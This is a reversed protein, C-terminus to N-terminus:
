PVCSHIVESRKVKGRNLIWKNPPRKTIRLQKPRKIKPKYYKVQKIMDIIENITRYAAQVNTTVMIAVDETITVLANKFQPEIRESENGADAINMLTRTIVSMITSCFLEQVIGNPNRSHFTELEMTIKEDRYFTEIEWRRYYLNIIDEASFDSPPLNTLIASLTGDPSELRIVRVSLAEAVCDTNRKRFKDSPQITIQMESKGSDLFKEVAPFTNSGSCRMVYFGTSFREHFIKLLEYSPYGRDLMVISDHPIKELLAMAHRRESSHVQEVIRGVPMRRFVDYITSVLCQPYHGSWQNPTKSRPDFCDTISQTAPLQFKSGDIAYVTYDKWSHWPKNDWMANAMEVAKDLLHEFAKWSLKARARCICSKDASQAHPLLGSRRANKIFRAMTISMGDKNTSSALSLVYAVLQRFPLKRERSFANHGLVIENSPKEPILSLFSHVANNLQCSLQPPLEWVLFM